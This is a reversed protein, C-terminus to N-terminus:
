QSLPKVANAFLGGVMRIKGCEFNPIMRDVPKFTQGFLENKDLAVKQSYSKLWHVSQDWIKLTYFDAHNAAQKSICKFGQTM